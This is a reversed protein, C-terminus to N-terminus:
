SSLCECVCKLAIKHHLSHMMDEYVCSLSVFVVNHSAPVCVCTCLVNVCVSVCLCVCVFVCMCLYVCVCNRGQRDAHTHTARLIEDDDGNLQGIVGTFPSLM